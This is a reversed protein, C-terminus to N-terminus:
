GVKMKHSSNQAYRYEMSMTQITAECGWKVFLQQIFRNGKAINFAYIWIQM